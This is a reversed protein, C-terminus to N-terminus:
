LSPIDPLAVNPGGQRFGRAASAYLLMNDAPTINLSVRPSVNTEESETQPFDTSCLIAFSAAETCTNSVEATLRSIRAGAVVEVTENVSYSMEAFGALQRDGNVQLFNYAVPSGPALPDGVLMRTFDALEQ